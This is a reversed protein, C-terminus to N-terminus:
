INDFSCEPMNKIVVGLRLADSVLDGTMNEYTSIEREWSEINGIMDGSGGVDWSLLSILLSAYRTQVRPEYRKM